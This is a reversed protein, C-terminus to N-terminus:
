VLVSPPVKDPCLQIYARLVDPSVKRFNEGRRVTKPLSSIAIRNLMAYELVTRRTSRAYSKLLDYWANDDHPLYYCKGDWDRSFIGVHYIRFFESSDVEEEPLNQPLPVRVIEKGLTVPPYIDIAFEEENFRILIPNEILAWFPPGYGGFVPLHAYILAAVKDICFLYGGSFRVGILKKTSACRDTFYANGNKIVRGIRGFLFFPFFGPTNM